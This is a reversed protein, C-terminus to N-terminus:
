NLSPAGRAIMYEPYVSFLVDRLRNEVVHRSNSECVLRRAAQGMDVLRSPDSLAQIIAAAIAGSTFDRALIGTVGDRVHAEPGGSPTTVVPLGCAMAELVVLGLGEQLSPLVFLDASQLEQVLREESVLGLGQSYDRLGDPIFHLANESGPGVLKLRVDGLAQRVIPMAEILARINKRRDDMRGVSILTRPSTGEGRPDAPRLRETDIPWSLVQLKPEVEPVASLIRRATQESVALILEARRLVLREQWRIFPWLLSRLLDRAGPEGGAARAGLEDELLTATWCVYRKRLIAATIGCLPMGLVLHMPCENLFQRVRPYPWWQYALATSRALVHGTAMGLLGRREQLRHDWLRHRGVLERPTLGEGLGANLYVLRPQIEWSSLMDYVAKLSTYAGGRGLPDITFLAAKM